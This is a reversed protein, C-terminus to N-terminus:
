KPPPIALQFSERPHPGLVPQIVRDLATAMAAISYHAVCRDRAQQGQALAQGYDAFIASIQAALDAPNDPEALYACGGLIEPIDGVRTALIPKAMAMGDTLKLPFQAAAASTQRQPVVVVHAAAIVRPMAAYPQKGLHIIHQPWRELLTRDYDDYPSGGVIVLKLDPQALQDMATLLDEVGKYPRPAGPFMLVRYAALGYAARSAEASYRNPDFLATDKGNPITVGGFRRQLFGNHTTVLDAQAVWGEMWQLYLPHDFNRLAGRPKLLDRLRQKVSPRYRYNDGGHWSLEWDDIDLIVPCRRSRSLQRHVLALGFSSPKLNYAYIIDGSLHRFLEGVARPGIAATPLPITHLPINTPTSRDGEGVTEASFGVIEVPYGVSQLAQALLFPRVAGGWRGAGRGSLDSVVISVRPRAASTHDLSKATSVPPQPRYDLMPEVSDSLAFACIRPRVEVPQGDKGGLNLDARRDCRFQGAASHCRRCQESAEAEM